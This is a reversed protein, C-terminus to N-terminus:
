IVEGRLGSHVGGTHFRRVALFLSSCRPRVSIIGALGSDLAASAGNDAARSSRSTGIQQLSM